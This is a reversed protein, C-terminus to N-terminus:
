ATGDNAMSTFSPNSQETNSAETVNQLLHKTKRGKQSSSLLGPHGTDDFLDTYTNGNRVVIGIVPAVSRQHESELQHTINVQRRFPVTNFLLGTGGTEDFLDSCFADQQPKFNTATTGGTIASTHHSSENSRQLHEEVVSSSIGDSPFSLIGMEMSWNAALHATNCDLLVFVM